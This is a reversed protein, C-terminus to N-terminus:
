DRSEIDELWARIAKRDEFFARVAPVRDATRSIRIWLGVEEQGPIEGGSMSSMLRELVIEVIEILCNAPDNEPKM